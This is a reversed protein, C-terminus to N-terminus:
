ARAVRSQEDASAFPISPYVLCSDPSSLQTGQLTRPNLRENGSAGLALRPALLLDVIYKTSEHM